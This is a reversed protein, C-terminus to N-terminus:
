LISIFWLLDPQCNDAIEGPFTRVFRKFFKLEVVQNGLPHLEKSYFEFWRQVTRKSTDLLSSLEDISYFECTDEITQYKNDFEARSPIDVAKNKKSFALFQQYTEERDQKNAQAIKIFEIQSLRWKM